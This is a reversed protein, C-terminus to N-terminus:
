SDLFEALIRYQYQRETGTTDEAAEISECTRAMRSTMAAQWATGGAVQDMPSVAAVAARAVFYGAQERWDCEAGCRNHSEVAAIRAAHLASALEDRSVDPKAAVQAVRTIREDNNLPLVNQLFRAALKRQSPQDLRTLQRRFEEDDSIKVM